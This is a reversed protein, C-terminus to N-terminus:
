KGPRTLMFSIWGFIWTGEGVLIVKLLDKFVLNKDAVVIGGGVILIMFFIVGIVIFFTEHEDKTINRM